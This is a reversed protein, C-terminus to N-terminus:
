RPMQGNHEVVDAAHFYPFRQAKVVAVRTVFYQCHVPLGSPSECM